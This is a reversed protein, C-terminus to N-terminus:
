KQYVDTMHYQENSFMFNLKFNQGYRMVYIAMVWRQKRM